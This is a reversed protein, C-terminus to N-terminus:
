RRDRCSRTSAPRGSCPGFRNGSWSTASRRGATRAQISSIVSSPWARARPTESPRPRTAALVTAARGLKAGHHHYVWARVYRLVLALFLSATAISATSVGPNIFPLKLDGRLEKATARTHQGLFITGDDFQTYESPLLYDPSCKSVGGWTVPFIKDMFGVAAKTYSTGFDLGIVIDVTGRRPPSGFQTRGGDAVWAEPSRFLSKRTPTGKPLPRFTRDVAPPRPTLSPEHRKEAAAPKQVSKPVPKAVPKSAAAVLPM